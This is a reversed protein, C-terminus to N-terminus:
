DRKTTGSERQIVIVQNGAGKQQIRTVGYEDESVTVEGSGAITISATSSGKKITVSAVDNAAASMGSALLLVCACGLVTAKTCVPNM